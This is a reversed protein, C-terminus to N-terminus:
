GDQVAVSPSGGASAAGAVPEDDIVADTLGERLVIRILAELLSDPVVGRQLAAAYLRGCDDKSLRVKFTRARIATPQEPQQLDTM